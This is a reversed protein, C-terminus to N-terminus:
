VVVLSKIASKTIKRYNKIEDESVKILKKYKYYKLMTEKWFKDIKIFNTNAMNIIKINTKDINLYKMNSNPIKLNILNTQKCNLFELYRCNSINLKCINNNSM